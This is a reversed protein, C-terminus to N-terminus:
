AVRPKPVFFRSVFLGIEFLLYMPVFLAMLSGLDGGPTIIAALALTGVLVYRRAKAITRPHVLGTRVVCVVAWPSDMVCGLAITWLVFFDLYSELRLATLSVEPNLASFSILFAMFWPLGYLYGIVCGFYFGIVGAPVFLFALRREHPLLGPAIFNWLQWLLVPAALTIAAYFSLWAAVSAAEGLDFVQLLNANPDTSIGLTKCDDPVLAVARRLPWALLTMLYSQFAFAVIFAVALVVVPPWLRRQLEKLHEGLPMAREDSAQTM